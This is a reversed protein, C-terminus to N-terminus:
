LELEEKKLKRYAIWDKVLMLVVAMVPVCLLIGWFGFLGGGVAIALLVYIPRVGVSQGIIRPQIINADLQQMVIIYVAVGIATYINQTLLSIIVVLIGAIIAGFYPIFNMVGIFVGLMVARPLRFILLGVSMLISVVVMDVVAGYVYNYFIQACKHAYATLIRLRTEGFAAALLSKIGGLLAEREALMYVSVILAMVVNVLTSTVSMASKVVTLINETNALSLLMNYLGDYLTKITESLHLREFLGGEATLAAIRETLTAYYDPLNKVFMSVMDYLAPILLMIFGTILAFFLVYCTVLSLPRAARGLVRPSKRKLFLELRNAPAYLLFAIAFGIIFPTFMALINRVGDVIGSFSEGSKYVLVAAVILSFWWLWKKLGQTHKM